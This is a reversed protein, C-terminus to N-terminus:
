DQRSIAAQPTTTLWHRRLHQGIMKLTALLPVIILAGLVGTLALAALLAVIILGPHLQLAQGMYQPRLWLNDVQQIAAYVAILLIILGFPSLPLWGHRYLWLILSTSIVILIGLVVFILLQVRLFIRWIRDIKSTLETAEAQYPAPLQQILAPVIKEGDRLLYYLSILTVLTWILNDGIGGLWGGSSLPLNTFANSTARQLYETFRQPQITFNLITFPRELLEGLETLAQRLELSWGPAQEVIFLGAVYLLGAVLVIALGYVTAVALGRRGVWRRELHNVLPDFLYALMTAVLLSRWLPGAYIVLLLSSVTALLLLIAHSTINIRVVREM